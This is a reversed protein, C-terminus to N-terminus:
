DRSQSLIETRAQDIAPLLKTALGEMTSQDYIGLVLGTKFMALDDRLGAENNSAISKVICLAATILSMEHADLQVDIM